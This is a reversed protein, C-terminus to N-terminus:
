DLLPVGNHMRVPATEHAHPRPRPPAPAPAPAKEEPISAEAPTPRARRAAAPLRVPKTLAPAAIAPESKEVTAPPPPTPPPETKEVVAAPPPAPPPGTKEVAVPAPTPPAVETKEVAAPPPPPPPVKPEVPAAVPPAAPARPTDAAATPAPQTAPAAPPRTSKGHGILILLMLAALGAASAVALRRRERAFRAVAPWPQWRAAVDAPVDGSEGDAVDHFSQENQFSEEAEARSAALAPLPADAASEERLEETGGEPGEQEALSLGADLQLEPILTRVFPSPTASELDIAPSSPPRRRGPKAPTAPAAAFPTLERALDDITAYRARPDVSMARLVLADLADPLESRRTRPAPPNGAAVARFLQELNAAAYPLEGTLAEYLIVGLAYQDSASDAAGPNGVLEPALYMPSGFVAADGIGSPEAAGASAADKAVGFDLLVPHVRGERFTLFINSPKLDRHTIGERHTAALAGCIPVVIGAVEAVPLAGARQLRRALDEGELLEMVLYARESEEGTDLVEVVNPHRVRGALRAEDLFRARATPKATLGADLVKVAVRKGDAVRLGEYVAGMSGVGLRRRVEYKGLRRGSPIAEDGADEPRV